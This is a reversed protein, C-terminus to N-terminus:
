PAPYQVARSHCEDLNSGTACALSPPAHIPSVPVATTRESPVCVKGSKCITVRGGGLLRVLYESTVLIDLNKAKRTGMATQLEALRQRVDGVRTSTPSAESMFKDFAEVYKVLIDFAIFNIKDQIRTDGFTTAFTQQENM